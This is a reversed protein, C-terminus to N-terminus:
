FVQGWLKVFCKILMSHSGIIYLVYPLFLIPTHIFTIPHLITHRATILKNKRIKKRISLTIFAFYDLRIFRNIM